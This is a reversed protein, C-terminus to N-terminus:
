VIVECLLYFISESAPASKRSSHPLNNVHHTSPRPSYFSTTLLLLRQPLPAITVLFNACFFGRM